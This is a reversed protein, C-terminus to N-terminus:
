AYHLVNYDKSCNRGIMCRERQRKRNEGTDKEKEEEKRGRRRRKKKKGRKTRGDSRAQLLFHLLSLMSM